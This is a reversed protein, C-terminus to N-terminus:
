RGHKRLAEEVDEITPATFSRVTSLNRYYKVKVPVMITEETISYFEEYAAEIESHRLSINMPCTEDCSVGAEAGCECCPNM